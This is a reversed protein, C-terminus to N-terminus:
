RGVRTNQRQYTQMDTGFKRADARSGTFAPSQIIVNGGRDGGSSSTLQSVGYIAAGAVALGGAIAAWGLPGMTLAKQVIQLKIIEKYARVLKGMTVIFMLLAGIALLASGGMFGIAGAIKLVPAPIMNMIKLVSTLVDLLVLLIPLVGEGVQKMFEGAEEKVEAFAAALEGNEDAAKAAMVTMAVMAAGAVGMITGAETLQTELEQTKAGFDAMKQSAEDRMRMVITIAAEDAM